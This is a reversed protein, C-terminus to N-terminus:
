KELGSSGRLTVVRQPTPELQTYSLLLDNGNTILRPFGTARAPSVAAVRQAPGTDGNSTVERIFIAATAEGTTELWSIMANGNPLIVVDVRGLPTGEDIRVRSSFTQGGDASWSLYVAATDQAGTFWALVVQEHDSALAPGNVPCGAITWDDPEPINPLQWEGGGTRVVGIDRVEETSRDRYAAVLESGVATVATQCCDCVRNDLEQRDSVRGDPHIRATRLTM